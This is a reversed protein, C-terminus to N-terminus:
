YDFSFFYHILSLVNIFVGWFILNFSLPKLNEKTKKITENILKIQEEKEM